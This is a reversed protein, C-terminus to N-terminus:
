RLPVKVGVAIGTRFLDEGKIVVDEKVQFFIEWGHKLAYSHEYGVHIGGVFRHLNSGGSVGLRANGHHNRGRNVCPKYAIGVHWTNYNHWFSQKTIHGAEPDTAYKLYGTAFYEWAHHYKNEHEYAITADCGSEYLAGVDLLLRNQNSSQARMSGVAFFAMALAMFVIGYTRSRSAKYNFNHHGYM